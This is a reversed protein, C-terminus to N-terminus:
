NKSKLQNELIEIRKNNKQIQYAMLSFIKNYHIYDMTDNNDLTKSVWLGYKNDPDLEKIQDAIVGVEPEYNGDVNKDYHCFEIKNFIDDSDDIKRINRKLKSSSTLPIGNSYIFDNCNISKQFYSQRDSAIHYVEANSNNWLYHSDGTQTEYRYVISNGQIKFNANGSSNYVRTDTVLSDFSGSGIVSLNGNSTDISGKTSGSSNEFRILNNDNNRIMLGSNYHGIYCSGSTDTYSTYSANASSNSMAMHDSSQQCRNTASGFLYSGGAQLTGSVTLNNSKIWNGSTDIRSNESGGYRKFILAGSTSIVMDAGVKGVYFSNDPVGNSLFQLYTNNNAQGCIHFNDNVNVTSVIGSVTLNGSCVLSSLTGLTTLSSSVFSSPLTTENRTLYQPMSTGLMNGKYLDIVGISVGLLSTLPSQLVGSVTLNSSIVQSGILTM